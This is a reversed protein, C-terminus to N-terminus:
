QREPYAAETLEALTVISGSSLILDPYDIAATTAMFEEAHQHEASRTESQSSDAFNLDPSFMSLRLNSWVPM